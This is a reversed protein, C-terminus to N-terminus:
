ATLRRVNTLALGSAANLAFGHPGCRRALM